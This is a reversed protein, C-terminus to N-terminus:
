FVNKIIQFFFHMIKYFFTLTHLFCFFILTSDQQGGRGFHLMQKWAFREPTHNKPHIFYGDIHLSADRSGALNKWAVTWTWSLWWLQMCRQSPSPRRPFIDLLIARDTARIPIVQIDAGNSSADFCICQLTHTQTWPIYFRRGKPQSLNQASATIM